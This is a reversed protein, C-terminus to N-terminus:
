TAAAAMPAAASPRMDAVMADAAARLARAVEPIRRVQLRSSPASLSLAAPLRIDHVPVAVCRGDPENEGNDVAFGDRRVSTLEDLYAPLSTITRDTFPPMGERALIARVREVPLSAAIAKGLATSHVWDRDGPRAALRVSKTSEVIELYIVRNGDLLGLNVTEEFLDRLREMHPRARQRLLDLQRAQLPLFALGFQYLGTVPDREVYRHSQLTWLYRFASAKPLGTAAAVEALSVGEASEQLLNLVSCVREVARVAYSRELGQGAASTVEDSAVGDMGDEDADVARKAM